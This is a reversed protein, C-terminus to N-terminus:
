AVRRGHMARDEIIALARRIVRRREHSDVAELSLALWDIAASMQPDFRQTPRPKRKTQRLTSTMQPM